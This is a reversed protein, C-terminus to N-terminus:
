RLREGIRGWRIRGLVPVSNGDGRNDYSFYLGVARGKIQSRGIM